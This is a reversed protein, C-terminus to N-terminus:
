GLGLLVALFTAIPLLVSLAGLSNLWLLSFIVDAPLNGVAADALYRAFRTAVYILWLVGVVAILNIFFERLMYRDILSFKAAILQRLAPM